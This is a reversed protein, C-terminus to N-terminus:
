KKPLKAISDLRNKKTLQISMKLAYKADKMTPGCGTNEGKKVCITKPEKKEQNKKEVEQGFTLSVFMFTIITIQLKKIKLFKM